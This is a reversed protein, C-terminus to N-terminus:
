LFEYFLFVFFRVKAQELLKHMRDNTDNERFPPSGIQTNINPPLALSFENLSMKLQEIAGLLLGCIERHLQRSQLLRGAPGGSCKTTSVVQPGFFVAELPGPSMSGRCSLKGSSLWAKSNKPASFYVYM